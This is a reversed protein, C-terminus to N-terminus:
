GLVRRVRIVEYVTGRAVAATGKFSYRVRYTGRSLRFRLKFVGKSNVKAKGLTRFRKGKEGKAVAITVRSGAASAERVIGRVQYSPGRSDPFSVSSLDFPAILTVTVPPSWATFYDGSQARAVMMYQGPGDFNWFRIKGTASDVIATTSPGSISGDPALVGGKAFRIEYNQAGVNGSFDILHTNTVSTNAPRTMLPGPPQGIAVSAAVNWTYVMPPRAGTGCGTATYTQITLTYTGNSRYAVREDDNIPSSWCLGSVSEGGDPATVTYKWSKVTADTTVQVASSALMNRITTPTGAALPAPQGDDGTLTVTVAANATAPAFLGMAVAAAALIRGGSKM